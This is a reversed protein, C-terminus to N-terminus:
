GTAVIERVSKSDLTGEASSEAMVAREFRKQIHQKFAGFENALEGYTLVMSKVDDFDKASNIEKVLGLIFEPQDHLLALMSACATEFRKKTKELSGGNIVINDPDAEDEPEDKSLTALLANWTALATDAERAALATEIQLSLFSTVSFNEWRPATGKPMIAMLYIPTPGAIVNGKSDKTLNFTIHDGMLEELRAEQQVVRMGTRWKSEVTTKRKRLKALHATQEAGNPFQLKLEKKAGEKGQVVDSMAEIEKELNKIWTTASLMTDYFSVRKTKKGDQVVTYDPNNGKYNEEAKKNTNVVPMGRIEELTFSNRIHDAMNLGIIKGYEDANIISEFEEFTEDTIKAALQKALVSEGAVRITVAAEAAAKAAASVTVPQRTTTKAM